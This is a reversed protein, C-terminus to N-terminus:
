SNLFILLRTASFSRDTSLSPWPAFCSVFREMDSLIIWVPPLHLVGSNLEAVGPAAWEQQKKSLRLELNLILTIWSKPHKQTTKLEESSLINWHSCLHASTALTLLSWVGHGRHRWWITLCGVQLFVHFTIQFYVKILSTHCFSFSGGQIEERITAPDFHLANFWEWMQMEPIKGPVDLLIEEKFITKHIYKLYVYCGTEDTNWHNLCIGLPLNALKYGHNYTKQWKKLNVRLYIYPKDKEGWALIVM